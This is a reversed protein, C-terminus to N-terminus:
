RNLARYDICMRWSGDKRKVLVIPSSVFSSSNQIVGFNLLEQMMKKIIDKQLSGYTYPRINIPHTREVLNIKNDHHRQPPLKHPQKLVDKFEELM